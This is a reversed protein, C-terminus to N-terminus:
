LKKKVIKNQFKFFTATFVSVWVVRSGTFISAHTGSLCSLVVVLPILRYAVDGYMTKGFDIAVSDSYRIYSPPLVIFYSFNTLIYCLMVLFPGGLVARPLNKEPEKLESTVLNLSNWGDYAWLAFQIALAYDQLSTSSNAFLSNWVIQSFM